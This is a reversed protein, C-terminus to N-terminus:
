LVKSKNRDVEEPLYGADQQLRARQDDVARGTAIAERPAAETVMVPVGKRVPNM